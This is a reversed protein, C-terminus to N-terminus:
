SKVEVALEQIFTELEEIRKMLEQERSQLEEILKRRETNDIAFYMVKTIKGNRDYFPTYTSLFWKVEGFKNYRKVEKEYFNGQKVGDIIRQLEEREDKVLELVNIGRIEDLTYHSTKLYRENANLLIGETTYEITLITNNVADLIGKMEAQRIAGEEQIKKLEDFNQRLEQEKLAVIEAQEQSQMLLEATRANIKATAVSAAINETIQEAFEIKYKEVENIFALEIVGMLQDEFILPLILLCKPRTNGLGSAIEVYNEPVNSLCITKRELACAGVLGEGFAIRKQYHKKVNMAFAASLELYIDKPDHNNVIFLGGLTADTYNILAQIINSTLQNITAAKQRQAENIRAIGQRTWNRINDERERKDNEIKADRLTINMNNISKALEDKESRVKVFKQFDGKAVAESVHVAKIMANAMLDFAQYLQGIENKSEVKILDFHLEGSVLKKSNEVLNALPKTLRNLYFNLFFFSLGITAIAILLIILIKYSIGELLVNQPVILCVQWPKESDGIYMPVAVVLEDDINQLVVNGKKIDSLMNLSNEFLDDLKKGILNHNDSVAVLTGTNSIVLIQTKPYATIEKEVTNQIWDLSATIGVTGLYVDNSLIPAVLPLKLKQKGISRFLMPELYTKQMTKQILQADLPNLTIEGKSDKFWHPIFRGLSDQIVEDINLEDKKNFLNAEWIIYIDQLQKNQEMVERLMQITQWRDLKTKHLPNGIVSFTSALTTSISLNNDISYKIKNGYTEASKLVTQHAQEIMNRKISYISLAIAFIILVVFFTGYIFFLEAKLSKYKIM